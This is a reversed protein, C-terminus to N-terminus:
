WGWPMMRGARGMTSDMNAAMLGMKANMGAVENAMFPLANMKANMAQMEAQMKPVSEMARAMDGLFLAITAGADFQPSSRMYQSVWAVKQEFEALRTREEAPLTAVLQDRSPAPAGQSAHAASGAAGQIEAMAPTAVYVGMAFGGIAAALGLGVLSWRHARVLATRRIEAQALERALVLVASEPGRFAETQENVHLEEQGSFPLPLVFELLALGTGSGATTQLSAHRHRIRDWRGRAV